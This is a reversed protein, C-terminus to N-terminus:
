NARARCRGGGGGKTGGGGVVVVELRLGIQETERDEVPVFNFAQEWLFM